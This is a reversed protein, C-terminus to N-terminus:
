TSQYIIVPQSYDLWQNASKQTDYFVNFGSDAKDSLAKFMRLMGFVFTNPAVFTVSSKGHINRLGGIFDVM